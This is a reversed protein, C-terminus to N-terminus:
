KIVGKDRANQIDKSTFATRNMANEIDKRTFFKVDQSEKPAEKKTTIKVHNSM